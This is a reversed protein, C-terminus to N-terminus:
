VQIATDIYAQKASDTLTSLTGTDGAIVKVRKLLDNVGNLLTKTM